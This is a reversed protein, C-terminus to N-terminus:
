QMVKGPREKRLWLTSAITPFLLFWTGFLALVFGAVPAPLLYGLIMTITLVGLPSVVIFWRPYMTRGSLIGVAHWITGAYLAVIATADGMFFHEVIYRTTLSFFPADSSGVVAQAQAPVSLFAWGAHQIGGIMLVAYALLVTPVASLWFGARRMGVWWQFYSLAFIPYLWGASQALLLVWHPRGNATLIVDFVQSSFYEAGSLTASYGYIYDCVGNWLALISVVVGIRVLRRRTITGSGIDLNSVPDPITSSTDTM